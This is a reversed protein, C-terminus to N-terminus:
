KSGLRHIETTYSEETWRAGDPAFMGLENLKAVVEVLTQAGSEFVTELADGLQNEFETPPASRTQWRINGVQGPRDIEGKGAVYNPQPQRWPRLYPNYDM